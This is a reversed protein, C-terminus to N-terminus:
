IVGDARLRRALEVAAAAVTDGQLIECSRQVRPVFLDVRTMRGRHAAIWASDLGLSALDLTAPKKRRAAILDAAKPFRPEGLESSVTVLAPLIVEVEEEGDPLVRTVLAHADDASAVAKAITVFPVDLAMALAPGVVGQDDDSAQRGCLVLDAGGLYEIAAALVDITLGVDINKLAEDQILHVQDVGLAFVRGALQQPNRCGVTLVVVTCGPRADRIRLAAEIAQEDYGNVVLPVGDGSLEKTAPDIKLTGGIAYANLADPDPVQKVCVVIRV